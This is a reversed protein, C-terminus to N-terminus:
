KRVMVQPNTVCERYLDVWSENSVLTLDVNEM